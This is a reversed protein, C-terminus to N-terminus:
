SSFGEFSAFDALPARDSVLTNVAAAPNARGIAMGCFLMREPPTGLVRYITPAFMSWVEQACSDLGAERLLLMLSQLFMGLDSFQGPGMNRDIFCFM